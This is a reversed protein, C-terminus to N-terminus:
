HANARGKPDGIRKGVDHAATDALVLHNGLDRRFLAPLPKDAANQARNQNPEDQPRRVEVFEAQGIRQQAAQDHGDQANDAVENLRADLTAHTDLIGAVKDRAM